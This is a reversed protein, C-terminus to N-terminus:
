YGLVMDEALIEENIKEQKTKKEKDAKKEKEKDSKILIVEANESAAFASFQTSLLFAAAIMFLSYQNM